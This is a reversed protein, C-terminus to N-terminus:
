RPLAYVMVVGAPHDKGWRLEVWTIAASDPPLDIVLARAGDKFRHNVKLSIKDGGALPLVVEELDLGDTPSVLAIQKWKKAGIRGQMKVDAKAPDVLMKGTDTWGKIDLNAVAKFPQPPPPPPTAEVPMAYVQFRGSAHDRGYRVTLSQIGPDNPPLDIVISRTGDKFRHNLDKTFTRGNTYTIVVSRVDLDGQTAHLAIRGFKGRGLFGEMVQNDRGPDVNIGGVATWGRTDFSTDGGPPPPPPPGAESKAWVLVRAPRADGPLNKYKLEIARIGAAEAPLTITRTRQGDRYVQRVDPSFVQGRGYRINLELLELDSDEVAVTVKNYRGRDRVKIVDRDQWGDVHKEGLFTWGTPDFGSPKAPPPFFEKAWVQVRARGGGPLNGYRFEIRNIFRAESPLDIARTRQGNRFVQRMDPSYRQGSGFTILMDYLEVDSDEVVVTLKTFRGEMRGVRIVDRDNRGDVQKEGLMTWGRADFGSPQSPPAVEERAWLQFRARTGQPLDGYRFEIREFGRSQAPLDIQKIRAGDRFLQRSEPSFRERNGTYVVLDYLQLDADEIVIALKTYRADRKMNRIADRDRRGDIIQEGILTWGRADFGSPRAPPRSPPVQAVVPPPAHRAPAHAPSSSPSAPHAPAPSSQIAVAAVALVMTMSLRKM